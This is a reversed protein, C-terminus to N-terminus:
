PNDRCNKDYPYINVPFTGSLHKFIQERCKWHLHMNFMPKWIKIVCYCVFRSKLGGQHSFPNRLLSKCLEPLTVTMLNVSVACNRM